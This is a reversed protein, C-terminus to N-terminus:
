KAVQTIQNDSIKRRVLPRQDELYDRLIDPTNVIRSIYSSDQDSETCYLVMKVLMGLYVTRLLESYLYLLLLRVM